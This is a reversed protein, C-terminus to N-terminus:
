ESASISDPVMLLFVAMAAAGSSFPLIWPPNPPAIEAFYELTVM